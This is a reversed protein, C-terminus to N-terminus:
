AKLRGNNNCQYQCQTQVKIPERLQITRTLGRRHPPDRIVRKLHPEHPSEAM